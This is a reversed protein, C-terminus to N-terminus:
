SGAELEPDRSPERELAPDPGPWSFGRGAWGPDPEEAQRQGGTRWPPTRAIPAVLDDWNPERGPGTGIMLRAGSGMRESPGARPPRPAGGHRQPRRVPGPVPRPVMRLGGAAASRQARGEAQQQASRRGSAKLQEGERIPGDPNRGIQAAVQRTCAQEEATLPM